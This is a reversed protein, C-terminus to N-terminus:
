KYKKELIEKKILNNIRIYGREELYEKLLICPLFILLFFISGIIILFIFTDILNISQLFHTTIKKLFLDIISNKCYFCDFLFLCVTGYYISLSEYLQTQEKWKEQTYNFMVSNNDKFSKTLLKYYEIYYVSNKKKVKLEVIMSFFAFIIKSVIAIYFSYLCLFVLFFGVSNKLFDLKLYFINEFNNELLFIDLFLVFSVILLLYKINAFKELKSTEM